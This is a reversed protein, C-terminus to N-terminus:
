FGNLFSVRVISPLFYCVNREKSTRILWLLCIFMKWVVILWARCSPTWFFLEARVNQRRRVLRVQATYQTYDRYQPHFNHIADEISRLCIMMSLSFDSFVFRANYRQSEDNRQSQELHDAHHGNTGPHWCQRQEIDVNVHPRTRRPIHLRSSSLCMESCHSGFM